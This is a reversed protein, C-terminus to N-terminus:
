VISIFLHVQRSESLLTWSNDVYETAHIIINLITGNSSLDLVEFSSAVPSDGVVKYQINFNSNELTPGSVIAINSVPISILGNGSVFTVDQISSYITPSVRLVRIWSNGGPSAVYQSMYGYNEGPSTDIYIDNLILTQGFIVGNFTLTNPEGSGVVIKSGRSGQPGIDVLVDIQEPSGLVVVDETNLLVDVM